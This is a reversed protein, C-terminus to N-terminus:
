SIYTFRVHPTSFILETKKRKKLKKQGSLCVFLLTNISINQKGFFSWRIDPVSNFKYYM